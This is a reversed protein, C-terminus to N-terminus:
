CRVTLRCCRSGARKPCRTELRQRQEVWELLGNGLAGSVDHSKEVGSVLLNGADDPFAIKRKHPYGGKLRFFESKCECRVELRRRFSPNCLGSEVLENPCCPQKIRVSVYAITTLDLSGV